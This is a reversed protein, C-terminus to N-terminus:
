ETGGWGSEVQDVRAKVYDALIRATGEVGLKGSNVTIDYCRADGWRGKCYQNHYSRRKRDYQAILLLARSESVHGLKMTREKRFPIDAAVFMTVLGPHWKLVEEACRGLVVFSEGASAREQLYQFQMQAIVDEPANSFGNVTRYLLRNKPLEDYRELRGPDVGRSQAIHRLMNKEYLPLDFHQALSRAIEHGGSGFQRSLAIILQGSM